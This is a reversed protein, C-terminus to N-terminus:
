GRDEPLPRVHQLPPHRGYQPLDWAADNGSVSRAAQLVKQAISAWDDLPDRM